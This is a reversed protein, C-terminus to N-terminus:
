EGNHTVSPEAAGQLCAILHLVKRKAHRDDAAGAGVCSPCGSDCSCDRVLEAARELLEDYLHLAELSLGVGGPVGDYVFLTPLGTQPARLDSTVGLDTPDCMCLLPLLNGFVRGLSSLTSQVALSEEAKHHCSPCLTILNALQNAQRHNENRGPVWSYDRFPTLHHVHHQRGPREPAGCWRCRYGDRRRARDRQSPWSPGRSTVQEGAWWGEASLREVLDDGLAVWFANTLMQQEPLSVDGWGLHEFTGLRLRRFGTVRSTVLADGYALRASFRESSELVRQIDVRTSGIAETYYGVSVARVTAVGGAWDLHEVSYQQGDHLYIGGQYVTRLASARDISGIIDGAGEESCAVIAVSDSNATRLSVEGAPYGVGQWYWAGRTRLLLGAEEMIPLLEELSEGGFREDDAFPLEYAACQVHQTLLCLNDPNVLAHEPSNGFFYEPHTMLYQDLPSASAVLVAVSPEGGRGARGAQQWASAITGPYGVLVAAGLGGIDVGLELANTAVVCRIRGDRLGREIARREAPTYGGRYGRIATADRGAKRADDRLYALLLETSLRSRAFAITQVGAELFRNILSRAELLPSNRIGLQANIIPPNYFVFHREGRPAGSQDVLAAIRGTLNRALELPNAITASSCIVQPECGHFRCLRMLRRLVNAVHSGFVGRYQHMEDIVIFRLNALLDRWDLHRPLIGAHLMDPNTLILRAKRRIQARRSNPTDGDYTAVAGELGLAACDTILGNLQDHALAKTPFLYLARSSPDRLLTHLVPLHYCLSKGSATPTVIVVDGGALAQSVAMSQHSYLEEIGRARLVEVLRTDLELPIDGLAPAGSALTRWACICSAYAADSRLRDLVRQLEAAREGDM